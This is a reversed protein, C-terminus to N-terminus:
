RTAREAYLHVAIRGNGGLQASATVQCADPLAFQHRLRKTVPTRGGILGGRTGGAGSKDCDDAYSGAIRRHPRSTVRVYLAAPHKVTGHTRAVVFKGVNSGSAFQRGLSAGWSLTTATVVVLMAVLAISRHARM